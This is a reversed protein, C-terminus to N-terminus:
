LARLINREFNYRADVVSSEGANMTLRGRLEGQGDEGTEPPIASKGCLTIFRQNHM